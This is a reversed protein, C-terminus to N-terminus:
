YEFCCILLLYMKFWRLINELYSLHLLPLSMSFFLNEFLKAGFFCSRLFYKSSSEGFPKRMLLTFLPAKLMPPHLHHLAQLFKKLPWFTKIHLRNASRQECVRRERSFQFTYRYTTKVSLWDSFRGDRRWAVLSRLRAHEVGLLNQTDPVTSVPRIRATDPPHLAPIDRGQFLAAGDRLTSVGGRKIKKYVKKLPTKVPKRACRSPAASVRRRPRFAGFRPSMIKL